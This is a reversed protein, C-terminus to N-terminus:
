LTFIHKDCHICRWKHFTPYVGPEYSEVADFFEEEDFECKEILQAVEEDSLALLDTQTAEGLYQCGDNCHHTWNPELISFYSPTRQTLESIVTQPLNAELLDLDDNFTGKFKLAASGDSICWPCVEVDVSQTYFIGQYIYGREANCCACTKTSKTIVQCSVPGPHYKFKPLESLGVEHKQILNKIHRSPKGTTVSTVQLKEM